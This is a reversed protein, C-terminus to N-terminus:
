EPRIIGEAGVCLARLQRLYALHHVAQEDELLALAEDILPLAAARETASAPRTGDVHTRALDTLARATNYTDGGAGLTRFSRVAAGLLARGEEPRGLGALARGRHRSLLALARPLDAAGDDDPGIQAYLAGVQEFLGYAEAWRWQAMRLLGLGEVVSAQGRLHGAASEDRAAARLASEAEEYRELATLAFGLHAHAMGATRTGPFHTAATRAGTHLAPLLVELLGAKLQVPWLARALRCVTDPEGFEDAAAVAEALNGAEAALAALVDGPSRYGVEADTAAPRPSRWSQPLAARATPEAFHLLGRLVRQVAASCVAVGDARFAEQEAHARVSPRYRYGGQPTVDLLQLGALVDLARAAEAAPVGAAWGAIRASCGPWPRLAALRYIRATAPDLTHYADDIAVRVADNESMAPLPSGEPRSPPLHAHLRPAAARLAYPSGACRALVAPMRAHAADVAQKGAVKVLLRRADKDTLPGVPVRLIDLGHLPDRAVLVTVVGPASSLLARVQAASTVHDLVVLLHLDAVCSRFYEARHEQAPPIEEHGVGLQRFLDRLVAGADMAGEPGGRLDVYLQGDPFRGSAERNGWFVAAASTGIGEPGYLLVARPRGDAKRSAEEDLQKLVKRRDTFSHPAAPLRPTSRVRGPRTVTGAFAAWDRALGPDHRMAEHLRHAVDDLQRGSSPAAVHRGLARQVLGGTSQWVWKGAENATGSAVAGLVATVAALSIPDLM